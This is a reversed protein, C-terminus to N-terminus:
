LKIEHIIDDIKLLAKNEADEKESPTFGTGEVLLEKFHSIGMTKMIDEIYNLGKNLFEKLIIPMKGGSSQIYVMTRPKNKLLGEIKNENIQITKGDQIICDLYEKLPAPFSLSWMPSAIVYIDAEKFQDCLQIIKNVEKQDKDNLKNFDDKNVICNRKEFYQYELRPIHEKYLDVEELQFDTHMELFRTVFARGVLKSSSLEEPKSNVTIYLLKKM